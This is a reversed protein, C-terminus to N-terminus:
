MGVVFERESSENRQWIYEELQEGTEREMSPFVFTIIIIKKKTLKISFCSSIVLFPLREM